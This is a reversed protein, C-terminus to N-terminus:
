LIDVQFLSHGAKFIMKDEMKEGEGAFIWTGNASPKKPGNGDKLIWKDDIYDIRSQVRSLYGEKIQIKCEHSRGITIPVEDQKFTLTEKARPGDIFQVMLSTLAPREGANLNM